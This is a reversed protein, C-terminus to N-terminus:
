LVTGVTHIGNCVESGCTISGSTLDLALASHGPHRDSPFSQLYHLPFLLFLFSFVGPKFDIMTLIESWVYMCVYM